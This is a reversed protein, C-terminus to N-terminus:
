IYCYACSSIAALEPRWETVAAAPIDRRLEEAHNNGRNLMRDEPSTNETVTVFYKTHIYIYARTHTRTCANILTHTHTYTCAHAHANIHADHVLIYAYVTCKAHM